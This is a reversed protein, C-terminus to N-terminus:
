NKVVGLVVHHLLHSCPQCEGAGAGIEVIPSVYQLIRLAREDPIAWAFCDVFEIADTMLIEWLQQRREQAPVNACHRLLFQERLISLSQEAQYVRQLSM